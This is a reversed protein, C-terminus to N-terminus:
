APRLILPSHWGTTANSIATGHCDKAQYGREILLSQVAAQEEPGHLEIFIVSKKAAITEAAGRLVYGAAGEVDIKIFNPVGHKCSYADLPSQRVQIRQAGEVVLGKEADAFKGQTSSNSSYLFEIQGEQEGLATNNVAVNSVANIELNRRLDTCLEEIPEFAVVRGSTGVAQSLLLSVHGRNAGVDFVLNGPNICSKLVEIHLAKSGIAYYAGFGPAVVFKWGRCPGRLVRRVSGLPYALRVLSKLLNM